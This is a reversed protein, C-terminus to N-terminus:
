RGSTKARGRSARLLPAADEAFRDTIAQLAREFAAAADSPASSAAAVTEAYKRLLLPRGRDRQQLRLELAVVVAAGGDAQLLQEFRLLKSSLLYDGDLGPDYDAVMGDLRHARLAAVLYEQVLGPPANQWLHYHYQQLSRHEADESYLLAREGYLGDARPRMVLLLEGGPAPAASGVQPPALRYYTEDPLPPQSACGVLVGGLVVVGWPHLRPRSARRDTGRSEVRRAQGLWQSM